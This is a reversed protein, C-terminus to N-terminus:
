AAASNPFLFCNCRRIDSGALHASDALRAVRAASAENKAGVKWGNDNNAGLIAPLRCSSPTRLNGVPEPLPTAATSRISNFPRSKRRCCRGAEDDAVAGPLPAEPM